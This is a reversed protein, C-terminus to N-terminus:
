PAELRNRYPIVLKIEGNPAILELDNKQFGYKCEFVFIKSFYPQLIDLPKFVKLFIDSM